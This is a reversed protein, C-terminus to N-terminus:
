EADGLSFNEILRDLALALPPRLATGAFSDALMRAVLSTRRYNRGGGLAFLEACLKTAEQTVYTKTRLVRAAYAADAGPRFGEATQLLYARMAEYRMTAEALRLRLAPSQPAPSATARLIAKACGLPIAAFLCFFYELPRVVNVFDPFGVIERSRAKDYRVTQSETPRMGFGDWDNLIEVGESAVDVLFFEVVGAGPLDDATVKASSFFTAANRGASALIKEGSLVFVGDSQRAATTKTAALSGGAGKESNCAAYVRGARYDAAVRATQEAFAVRHADPAIDDLGYIGALGLPMSAILAVSPSVSAITELVRVAEVLKMARGGLDEAFPGAIIGADFLARISREPYAEPHNREQEAILPLLDDLVLSLSAPM